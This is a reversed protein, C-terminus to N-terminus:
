TVSLTFLMAYCKKESRTQLQQFSLFEREGDVQRGYIVRIQLELRDWCRRIYNQCQKRVVVDIFICILELQLVEFDRQLEIDIRHNASESNSTSVCNFWCIVLLARSRKLAWLGVQRSALSLWLTSVQFDASLFFIKKLRRSNKRGMFLIKGGFAMTATRQSSFTSLSRRLHTFSHPFSRYFALENLAKVLQFRPLYFHHSFYSKLCQVHCYFPSYSQTVYLKQRM